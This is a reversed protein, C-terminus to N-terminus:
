LRPFDWRKSIAAEALTKRLLKARGPSHCNLMLLMQSTEETHKEEIVGASCVDDKGSGRGLKGACVHRQSQELLGGTSMRSHQTM